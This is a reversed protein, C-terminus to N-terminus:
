LLDCDFYSGTCVKNAQDNHPLEWTLDARTGVEIDLSCNLLLDNGEYVHFNEHSMIHPTNLTAQAAPSFLNTITAERVIIYYLSCYLLIRTM